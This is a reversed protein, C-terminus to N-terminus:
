FPKKDKPCNKDASTLVFLKDTAHVIKNKEPAAYVYEIENGFQNRGRYIGLIVSNQVLTFYEYCEFFTCDILSEPIDVVKLCGSTKEDVDLGRHVLKEVVEVIYPNFYTQCLLTDLMSSPFVRGSAYLPSSEVTEMSFEEFIRTMPSKRSHRQHKRAMSNYSRDLNKMRTRIFQMSSSHIVESIIIKDHEAEGLTSNMFDEIALEVFVTESDIMYEDEQIQESSNETRSSALVICGRCVDIGARLLDSQHMASGNVYFIGRFHSLNKWEEPKPAVSSLIVIPSVFKLTRSRLPIILNCLSDCTGAVILHRELELSGVDEVTVSELSVPTTKVYFNGLVVKRMAIKDGNLSRHVFPPMVSAVFADFEFASRERARQHQKWKQDWEPGMPM